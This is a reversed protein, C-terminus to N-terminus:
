FKNAKECRQEDKPDQQLRARLLRSARAADLTAARIDSRSALLTARFAYLAPQDPWTDCSEDLLEKLHRPQMAVELESLERLVEFPIKDVGGKLM